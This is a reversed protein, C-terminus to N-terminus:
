DAGRLMAEESGAAASRAAVAAFGGILIATAAVILLSPWDIALVYSPAAGPDPDLLRSSLPGLLVVAVVATGFPVLLLVAVEVWRATAVGARGFGIRALLM